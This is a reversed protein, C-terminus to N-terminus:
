YSGDRTVNTWEAIGHVPVALRQKIIRVFDDGSLVADSDVLSLRGINLSMINVQDAPCTSVKSFYMMDIWVANAVEDATINEYRYDTCCMIPLRNLLASSSATPQAHGPTPVYLVNRVYARRGCQSKIRVSPGSNRININTFSVGDVGGSM